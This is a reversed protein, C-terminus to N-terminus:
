PAGTVVAFRGSPDVDDPVWWTTHSVAGTRRSPTSRLKGLTEDLEGAALMRTRLAPIRRGITRAEESDLYVSLGCAQCLSGGWDLDPRELFLSVFDDPTPPDLAVLRYVRGSANVADAPPCASPFHAPWVVAYSHLARSDTWDSNREKDDWLLEDTPSGLGVTAGTARRLRRRGSPVTRSPRFPDKATLLSGPFQRNM